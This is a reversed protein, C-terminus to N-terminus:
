IKLRKIINQMSILAETNSKILKENRFMFWCVVLGLLGNELVVKLIQEEIM